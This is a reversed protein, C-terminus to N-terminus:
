CVPSRHRRWDWCANSVIFRLPKKTMIIPGPHWKWQGQYYGGEAELPLIAGAERVCVPDDPRHGVEVDTFSATEISLTLWLLRLLRLELTVLLNNFVYFPWHSLYVPSIHLFLLPHHQLIITWFLVTFSDYTINPISLLCKDHWTLWWAWVHTRKVAQLWSRFQFLQFACQQLDPLAIEPFSGHM